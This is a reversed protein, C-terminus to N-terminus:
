VCGYSVGVSDSFRIVEFGALAQEHCNVTVYWVIEGVDRSVVVVVAFRRPFDEISAQNTEGAALTYRGHLRASDPLEVATFTQNDGPNHSTIGQDISTTDVRGDDFRITYEAPLEVVSVEFTHSTSASNNLIVTVPREQVSPGSFPLATCGAVVLLAGLSFMCLVRRLKTTGDHM